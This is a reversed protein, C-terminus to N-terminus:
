KSFQQLEQNITALMADAKTKFESDSKFKTFTAYANKALILRDEKKYQVSNMALKYATSFKLFLAEEKFPTGPYDSIFNDLATLAANYELRHDSITYYQKAIEFAKKELKERLEKVYENAKPLYESDPYSDIFAQLKNLAKDTDTQDLSYRPSLRYFCEASLFAAEERKESKPYNSAFSEFQYGALYYQKTNYYSKSYLYFLREANPKGRYAPAIQEYLRLAKSYKGKDYMANAVKNKVALDESKLAKQYESCSSLFIVILFFSIIKNM